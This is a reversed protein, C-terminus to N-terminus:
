KNLLYFQYDYFEGIISARGRRRIPFLKNDIMVFYDKNITKVYNMNLLIGRNCLIFNNYIKLIEHIDSFKIRYNENSCNSFYINTYKDNSLVYMIKSAKINIKNKGSFFSILDDKKALKEIASIINKKVSDYELYEKRIYNFCIHTEIARWVDEQSTTVFIMLSTDNNEIFKRAYYIGDKNEDCFENLYIDMFVINYKDEYSSEIFNKGNSFTFLEMEINEEKQILVLYDVLKDIDSKNDDVIAIKIM